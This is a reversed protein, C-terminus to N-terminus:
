DPRHGSLRHICHQTDAPGASVTRCLASRAGDPLPAGNADGELALTGRRRDRRRRHHILRPGCEGAATTWAYDGYFVWDLGCSGSGMGESSRELCRSRIGDSWSACDRGARTMAASGGWPTVTNATVSSAESVAANLSRYPKPRSSQALVITM